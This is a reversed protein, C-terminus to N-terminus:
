KLFEKYLSGPKSLIYLQMVQNTRKLNENSNSRNILFYYLNLQMGMFMNTILSLIVDNRLFNFLDLDLDLYNGQCDESFEWWHCAVLIQSREVKWQTQSAVATYCHGLPVIALKPVRTERAWDIRSLKDQQKNCSPRYGHLTSIGLYKFTNSNFPYKTLPIPM